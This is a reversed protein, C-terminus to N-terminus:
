PATAVLEHLYDSAQNALRATTFILRADQKLLNLWFSLYQAHDPRPESTIGLDACLFAAGLDAVLEEMAYDPDGFKKGFQRKLRHEAGTWHTLEHLLTAYYSETPSSTPTGIFRERAPIVILDDRQDYYAGQGGHRITARTAAVFDEAAAIPDIPPAPELDDQWGDVQEANFVRSARAVFRRQEEMDPEPHPSRDHEIERYFVITSGVEGRRVQAGVNQWQQYSAWLGSGFGALTAEAWLAVINVGRYQMGTNANTPRGISPGSRHWPMVFDGAGAEIAKVIKDTVARYVDFRTTSLVTSNM